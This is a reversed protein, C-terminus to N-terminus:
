IEHQQKSGKYKKWAYFLGIYLVLSIITVIISIFNLSTANSANAIIKEPVLKFFLLFFVFTFLLAGIITGMGKKWEKIM